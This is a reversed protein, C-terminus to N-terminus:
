DAEALAKIARLDLKGTALTPIYEVRKIEKPIWLNSYGAASLKARVDSLELDMVTLLVLAEGKAADPRGAVALMPVDSDLLDFAEVLAHEVTGHPVM